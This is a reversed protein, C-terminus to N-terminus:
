IKNSRIFLSDWYNMGCGHRASKEHLSWNYGLNRLRVKMKHVEDIPYANTHLHFEISLQTAYDHHMSMIIQKEEGEVDMKILDFHKVGVLKCLAHMDYVSIQEGTHINSDIRTAQPDRSRFIHATGVYDSVALRYYDSRKFDDIDVPIVNHGLSRFYNTFEFGRCGLDLINAKEPLLDMCVSHEAIVQIDMGILARTM